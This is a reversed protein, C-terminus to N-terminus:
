FIAAWNNNRVFYLRRKVNNKLNGSEDIELGVLSNTVVKKEEGRIKKKQITPVGRSVNERIMDQIDAFDINYGNNANTKFVFSLFYVIDKVTLM